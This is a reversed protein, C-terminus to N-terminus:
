KISPGRESVEGELTGEGGFIWPHVEVKVRYGRGMELCLSVLDSTRM